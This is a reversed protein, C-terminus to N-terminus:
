RCKIRVDGRTADDHSHDAAGPPDHRVVRSHWTGL